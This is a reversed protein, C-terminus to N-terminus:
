EDQPKTYNIPLPLSFYSCLGSSSEQGALFKEESAPFSIIMNKSPDASPSPNSSRAAILIFASSFCLVGRRRGHCRTFAFDWGLCHFGLLELCFRTRQFTEIFIHLVIYKFFPSCSTKLATSCGALCPSVIFIYLPYPGTPVTLKGVFIRSSFTESEREM